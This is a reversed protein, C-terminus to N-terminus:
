VPGGFGISHLVHPVCAVLIWLTCGDPQPGCSAKPTPMRVITGIRIKPPRVGEGSVHFGLSKIESVALTCKNTALKLGFKNLRSFLSELYVLHQQLDKSCILLNYLYAIM